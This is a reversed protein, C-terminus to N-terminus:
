QRAEPALRQAKLARQVLTGVLAYDALGYDSWCLPKEALPKGSVDVFRKRPVDWFGFSRGREEETVPQNGITEFYGRFWPLRNIIVPPILLSAANLDGPITRGEMRRDYIFVLNMGNVFGNRSEVELQIVKGCYFTGVLPQLRFVDGERLRKRSPTMPILETFERERM